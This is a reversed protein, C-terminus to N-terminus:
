RGDGPDAIRISKPLRNTKDHQVKGDEIYFRIVTLEEGQYRLNETSSFIEESRCETCASMKIVVVVPMNFHGRAAYYHLNVIYEGDELGHSYANEYNLPTSDGVEGLDDRLLNFLVDARNSYGVAVSDTPGKVWLDVDSNVGSTWSIDIQINGPPTATLKEIEAPPNIHVLAALFLIVFTLMMVLIVDRFVTGTDDEFTYFNELM